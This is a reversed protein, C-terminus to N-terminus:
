CAFVGARALPQKLKDFAAPQLRSWAYSSCLIAGDRLQVLCPDQSGGFPHAFILQPERGWTKGSDGSRVLVLQSNPDTHTIGQEGLLRRDPARRFAVLLEGDPRRVISPFAAYFTADEYIVIDALKRVEKAASARTEIVGPRCCLIISLCLVAVLRASRFGPRPRSAAPISHM